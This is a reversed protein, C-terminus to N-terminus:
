TVYPVGDCGPASKKKCVPLIVSRFDEISFSCLSSAEHEQNTLKYGSFSCRAVPYLPGQVKFVDTFYSVIIREQELPSTIYSGSSDILSFKRKVKGNCLDVIQSYAPWPYPESTVMRIAKKFSHEFTFLPLCRKLEAIADSINGTFPQIPTSFNKQLFAFTDVVISSILPLSSPGLNQLERLSQKAVWLPHEHSDV